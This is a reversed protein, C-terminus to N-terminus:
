RRRGLRVEAVDGSGLAGADAVQVSSASRTKRVRTTLGFHISRWAAAVAVLAGELQRRGDVVEEAVVRGGVDTSSQIYSVRPRPTRARGSVAPRRRRLLGQASRSIASRSSSAASRPSHSAARPPWARPAARRAVQLGLALELLASVARRCASTDREGRMTPWSPAAAPAAARRPEVRPDAAHEDAALLARRLRGGHAREGRQQRPTSTTSPQGNAAVRRAPRPKGPRGARPPRRDDRRRDREDLQREAGGLVADSPM